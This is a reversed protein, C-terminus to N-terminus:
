SNNLIQGSKLTIVTIEPRIFRIPLISFGLGQTVALVHGPKFYLGRSYKPFFFQRRFREHLPTGNGPSFVPGIIPLRLIGGHVHGSLMLDPLHDLRDFQLPDHCVAVSPFDPDIEPVLGCTMGKWSQGYITLLRGNRQILYPSDNLIVAGSAALRDIHRAYEEETVGAAGPRFDHNGETYTVPAVASLAAFLDYVPQPSHPKEHLDGATVILDPSAKRVAEALRRNGPGFVRDHLDSILVIRYGDFERPLRAIPVSYHNYHFTRGWCFLFVGGAVDLSLLALLIWLWFM